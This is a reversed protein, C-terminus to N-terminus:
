LISKGNYAKAESIIELINTGEFSLYREFMETFFGKVGGWLNGAVNAANNAVNQVGSKVASAANQVGQKIQTLKGSAWNSAQDWAVGVKSAITNWSQKLFGGLASAWEKVQSAAVLIKAWAATGFQKFQNIMWKVFSVTSDKMQGFQQAVYQAGKGIAIGAAQLGGLTKQGVATAASVTAKGTAALFKVIANGVAATVKFIGKGLLFVMYGSTIVAYFTVKGITIAVQKAGQLTAAGAQVAATGVKKAGQAVNGVVKNVTQRAQQGAQVGKQTGQQFNGSITDQESIVKEIIRILDSETLTIVRKKM